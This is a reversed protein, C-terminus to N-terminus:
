LLFGSVIVTQIRQDERLNLLKNQTFIFKKGKESLWESVFNLSKDEDDSNINGQLKQNIKYFHFEDQFNLELNPILYLDLTEPVGQWILLIYETM